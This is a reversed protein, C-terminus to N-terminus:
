QGMIIKLPTNQTRGKDNENHMINNKWKVNKPKCIFEAKKNTILFFNKDDNM